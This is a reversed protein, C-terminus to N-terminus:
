VPKTGAETRLMVKHLLFNYGRFLANGVATLVSSRRYDDLKAAISSNLAFRGTSTPTQKFSFPKLSSMQSINSPSAELIIQYEAKTILGKKGKLKSARGSDLQQMLYFPTIRFLSVLFGQTQFGQSDPRNTATRQTFKIQVSLFPQPLLQRSFRGTHLLINLIARVKVKCKLQEQM